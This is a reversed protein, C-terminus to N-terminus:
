RSLLAIIERDETQDFRRYFQGVAQFAIPAYLCVIKDVEREMQELADPAAVPVALVVERAGQARVSRIAVQMSAGTAIGDDVLIVTKGKIDTKKNKGRYLASREAAIKKQKAVEDQIYRPSVGLAQIVHDNFIGEGTEAIAGIALEENDPAGIKRVVIVDLPVNLGQAVPHAVVVGGRALGLVVVDQRGKYSALKPILQSGADTRDNFLTV